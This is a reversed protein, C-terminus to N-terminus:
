KEELYKIVKIKGNEQAIWLYNDCDVCMCRPDKIGEAEDVLERISMDKGIMYVCDNYQDTALINGAKDTCIGEPYFRERGLPNQIIHRVNGDSKLVVLREKEYDSVCFGGDQLAVAQIPSEYLDDSGIHRQNGGQSDCLIVRGEYRDDAYKRLCVLIEQTEIITVFLTTYPSTEFLTKLNNQGRLINIMDGELPSVLIDGSSAVALSHCKNNLVKTRKHVIKGKSDITHIDNSKNTGILVKGNGAYCISPRGKLRSAFSSIIETTCVELNSRIIEGISEISANDHSQYSPPVVEIPDLLKSRLVKSEELLEAMGTATTSCLCNDHRALCISIKNKEEALRNKESEWTTRDRHIISKLEDKRKEEFEDALSRLSVADHSINAEISKISTEYDIWSQEGKQILANVEKMRTEMKAKSDEIEPKFKQLIQSIDSFKHGNHTEAICKTCVPVKCTDCHLSTTQDPHKKCFTSGQDKTLREERLVVQHERTARAKNHIAKCTPCITEGCVLCYHEVDDVGGCHDCKIIAQAHEFISSKSLSM